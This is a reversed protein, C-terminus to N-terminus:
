INTEQLVKTIKKMQEKMEETRRLLVDLEQTNSSLVFNRASNSPTFSQTGILSRREESINLIMQQCQIDYTLLQKKIENLSQFMKQDFQTPPQTASVKGMILDCRRELVNMRDRAVGVKKKMAMLQNFKEMLKLGLEARKGALQEAKDTLEAAYNVLESVLQKNEKFRLGVAKVFTTFHTLLEEESLSPNLSICPLPGRAKLKHEFKKQFDGIKSIEVKSTERNKLFTSDSDLQEFDHRPESLTNKGMKMLKWSIRMWEQSPTVVSFNLTKVAANQPLEYFDNLLKSLDVRILVRDTALLYSSNDSIDVNLNCIGVNKELCYQDHLYLDYLDRENPIALVHSITNGGSLIALLVFISSNPHRIVRIALSETPLATPPILARVAAPDSHASLDIHALYIEGESDVAILDNMMAFKSSPLVDFSVLRKFLGFTNTQGFHDGDGSCGVVSSFDVTQSPGDLAAEAFHVGITNNDFLVTFVNFSEETDNLWRVELIKSKRRSESLNASQCECVYDPRSEDLHVLENGLRVVYVKEASWLVVSSGGPSITMQQISESAPISPFLSIKIKKSISLQGNEYIFGHLLYLSGDSYVLVRKSRHRALLLNKGEFLKNVGTLLM